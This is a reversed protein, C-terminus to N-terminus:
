QELAICQPSQRPVEDRRGAIVTAGARPAAPACSVSPMRRAAAAFLADIHCGTNVTGARQWKWCNGNVAAVARGVPRAGAFCRPNLAEVATAIAAFMERVGRCQIM